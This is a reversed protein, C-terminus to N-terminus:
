ENFIINLFLQKRIARHNLKEENDPPGWFHTLGNHFRLSSIYSLGIMIPTVCRM